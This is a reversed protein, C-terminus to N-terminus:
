ICITPSVGRKNYFCEFKSLTWETSVILSMCSLMHPKESHRMITCIYLNEKKNELSFICLFVTGDGYM